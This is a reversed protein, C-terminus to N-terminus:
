SGRPQYYQRLTERFAKHSKEQEFDSKTRDNLYRQGRISTNQLTATWGRIQRSIAEARSKLYSIQSKLDEFDGLREIVSLISRVEGASGRAYYLFSLLEQTTGREFGEAINNSVSLGARQIQNAIDGFGVFRKGRTAKFISVALTVSDKWVPLDEFREFKM